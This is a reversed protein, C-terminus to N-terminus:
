VLLLSVKTGDLRCVPQFCALIDKCYEVLVVRQLARAPAPCFSPKLRSLVVYFSPSGGGGGCKRCHTVRNKQSSIIFCDFLLFAHTYHM